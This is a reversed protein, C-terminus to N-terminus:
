PAPYATPTDAPASEPPPYATEVPLAMTAEPAPYATGIPQATPMEPVPYPTASAGAIQEAATPTAAEGPAGPTGAVDQAPTGAPVLRTEGCAGLLALTGALAVVLIARGLGKLERDVAIQDSRVRRM